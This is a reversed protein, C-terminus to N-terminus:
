QLKQRGEGPNLVEWWSATRRRGRFHRQRQLRRQSLCVGRRGRGPARGREEDHGVHVGGAGQGDLSGDVPLHPTGQRIIHGFNTM